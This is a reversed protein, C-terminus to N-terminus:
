SEQEYASLFKSSGPKLRGLRKKKIMAKFRDVDSNSFARHAVFFSDAVSTAAKSNGRRMELDAREFADRIQGNKADVKVSLIRRVDSPEHKLLGSAYPRGEIESSLQGFSSIMSLPLQLKEEENLQRRFRLEYLSNTCKLDDISLCLRPFLHSMGTFFGDIRDCAQFPQHWVKRKKFTVNSQITVDPMSDLYSRVGDDEGLATDLVAVKKGNRFADALDSISLALGQVISAKTVALRLFDPAIGKAAARANDFIFFRADGLVTGIKVDCIDGLPTTKYNALFRDSTASVLKREEVNAILHLVEGVRDARIREVKGNCNGEACWDDCFVLVTKEAAGESVFLHEEIEIETISLFHQQLFHRVAKAYSAYLYNLPLVLAMRGHSRLFSSAHIVFFAWLNAQMPLNALKADRLRSARVFVDESVIHHKVYPPNGVVVDVGGPALDDVTMGLFDGLRFNQPAADPHRESLAEFAKLDIDAGYILQLPEREGLLALRSRASAIFECGGFSPELVKDCSNRIAWSCLVDAVNRSTYYAGLSRRQSSFERRGLAFGEQLMATNICSMRGFYVVWHPGIENAFQDVKADERSM